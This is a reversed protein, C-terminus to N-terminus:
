SIEDTRLYLIGTQTLDTVCFSSLIECIAKITLSTEARVVESTGFLPTVADIRVNLSVDNEVGMRLKMPQYHRAIITVGFKLSFLSYDMLYTTTTNLYHASDIATYDYTRVTVYAPAAYKRYDHRIVTVNGTSFLEGVFYQDSTFSFSGPDDYHLFTVNLNIPSISGDVSVSITSYGLGPPVVCTLLTDNVLISVNLCNLSSNDESQHFVVVPAPASQSLTTPGFNRGTINVQTYYARYTTEPTIALVVPPSVSRFPSPVVTTVGDVTIIIDHSYPGLSPTVCTLTYNDVVTLNSCKKGSFSVSVVPGEKSATSPGFNEGYLTVLTEGYRTGIIPFIRTFVPPSLYTFAGSTNVQLASQDITLRLTIPTGVAYAAAAPTYTVAETNNRSVTTNLSLRDALHVQLDREGPLGALPGFNDGVITLKTGGSARGATPRVSTFVPAPYYVFSSAQTANDTNILPLITNPVTAKDFFALPTFAIFTDLISTALSHHRKVYSWDVPSLVVVLVKSENYSAWTGNTFTYSDEATLGDQVTIQGINVLSTAMPENFEFTFEETIFNLTFKLMFPPTLDAIFIDAMLAGGDYRPVVSNDNMDRILFYDWVLWTTNSNIAFNDISKINDLDTKSIQVVVVTDYSLNIGVSSSTLTRSLRTSSNQSNQLALTQVYLSHGNVTERFTLSLLGSDMDLLFSRIQPRVNDPTFIRVQQGRGNIIEEIRNGNMDAILLQSFTLFTDSKDTVLSTMKKLANLDNLDFRLILVTSNEYSYNGGSLRYYSALYILNTYQNSQVNIQTVDFSAIDVTEDFTLLILESNLNIDYSVLKPNTSDPTFTTVRRANNTSIDQVHNGIMDVIARTTLSLYTTSSSTCLNYLKRLVNMDHTGIKVTIVAVNPSNSLTFNPSQGPTLTHYEGMASPSGQLRIDSVNLSAANVAESFTIVLIATNMDLTFGLLSPSVRDPFFFRVKLANTFLIEVIKNNNMDDITYETLSLFTNNNNTALKTFTKIIDTDYQDLQITLDPSNPTLLKNRISLQHYETINQMKKNQITLLNFYLSSAYVTETFFLYLMHNNMDLDFYSLEPRKMDPTFVEAVLGDGFNISSRIPMVYNADFAMDRIAFMTITLWGNPRSTFLETNNKILNLDELSFSLVVVTSYERQKNVGGTLTYATSPDFFDQLTFATYNLSTANVTESFTLVAVEETLNVSFMVLRPMTVDAQYQNVGFAESDPRADVSNNAMDRITDSEYTIYCQTSLRCIILKKLTNLDDISFTVAVETSDSISSTGGTLTHSTVAINYDQLSISQINLTSARITEAFTLVFRGINMDISFNTLKPTTADSTFVAVQLASGDGIETLNNGAMDLVASTGAVLYTTSDNIALGQRRKIENRDEPGLQIVIVHGNDNITHSQETGPTLARPSTHYAPDSLTASQIAIYQVNLSTSEVFEDFTLSLLDLDLNLDYRLLTPSTGDPIFYSARKADTSSIAIVNNDNLDLITFNTMALYTENMRTALISKYKVANLDIFGLYVSVVTGDESLSYSRLPNFGSLSGQPFPYQIYETRNLQLNTSNQEIRFIGDLNQYTLPNSTGARTSQIRIQTLDLTDNVKVTESFTMNLLGLNLDLGYSRLEPSTKDEFFFRVSLTKAYALNDNMDLILEPPYSFYTNSTNTALSRIKKIQNLDQSGISVILMTGDIDFSRSGVPYPPYDTLSYSIFGPDSQLLSSQLRIKTVDLSSANVTESFEITLNEVNLDLDFYEIVPSTLDETFGTIQKGGTTPVSVIRNGFMDTIFFATLSLFTSNLDIALESLYKIRNIGDVSITISLMTSDTDNTVSFNTLTFSQPPNSRSSQITLQTVNITSLRVTESFSLTMMGVNLDIYSTILIPRTSDTTYDDVPRSSSGNFLPLVPIRNMDFLAGEEIVLWLTRNTRGIEKRKIENLDDVSLSVTVFRSDAAPTSSVAFTPRTLRHFSHEDAPDVSPYEQLVLLSIELSSVNVTESFTFNLLGSNLDAAYSVLYPQVIDMYFQTAPLPPSTAVSPNYAMDLVTYPGLYLYSTNRSTFLTDRAKINNLDNFQIFVDAQLGNIFTTSGTTLTYSSTYNFQSDQLRFLNYMFSNPRIPENFLLTLIGSTMNVSFTLLYPRMNEIPPVLSKITIALIANANPSTDTLATSDLKIYTDNVNTWCLEILKISDLDSKTLQLTFDDAYLDTLVGGTLNYVPSGNPSCVIRIRPLVFSLILITEDFDFFIEGADLNVTFNLLNSRTADQTFNSAMKANTNLIAVLPNGNMDLVTSNEVILFSDNPFNFMYVAAKLSNLERLSLTVTLVDSNESSSNSQTSLPLTPKSANEANQLTLREIQLTSADVTESFFLTLVGSNMDVNFSSLEPNIIDPNFNQVKEGSVGTLSNGAMDVVAFRTLTLFTSNQSYALGTLRKIENLDPLGLKVSYVTSDMQGSFLVSNLSLRYSVIYNSSSSHLLIDSINFTSTNVTESFTFTITESTLDLGFYVLVPATEDETFERVPLASIPSVLEMPNNNLDRISGYAVSLFTNSASSALNIIKKIENLDDIGIWVRVIDGNYSNTFSSNTLAYYTQSYLTENPQLVLNPIILTRPNVFESFTLVILGLNLDFDFELLLPSVLDPSYNDPTLLSVPYILNSFTDTLFSSPFSLLSSNASIALTSINKLQSLDFYNLLITVQDSATKSFLGGTLTVSQNNRNSITLSSIDITATLIVENFSLYLTESTLNLQYAFLEPRVKDVTFTTVLQANSSPIEIVFNGNMDVLTRNSFSIYTNASNTAFNAYLKFYDTDTRTLYITLRTSDTQTSSVSELRRYTQSNTQNTPLSSSNQLAIEHILLSSADVTENFEFVLQNSTLNLEFSYLIPRTIDELVEVAQLPVPFILKNGNLDRVTYPTLVIFTDAESDALGRIRKLENLDPISIVLSLIYGDYPYVFASIIQHTLSADSNQILITPPELTTSDVVENFTLSLDGSDMDLTFNDLRPATKDLTINLVRKAFSRPISLILNGQQDTLFPPFSIFTNSGNAFSALQRKIKIENLDQFSLQINIVHFDESIVLSNVLTYNQTAYETIGSQLTIRDVQISTANVTESFYLTLTEQDLDLQFYDLKPQTSDKIYSYAEKANSPSIRTINNARYDLIGQDGVSLYTDELRTALDTYRKIENLDDTQIMIVQVPDRHLSHPTDESLQVYSANIINRQSQITFMSPTMLGGITTESFSLTLYGTNLDLTYNLLLPKTLDETVDTAALLSLPRVMNGNMDRILERSITLSTFFTAHTLYTSRKLANLDEIGIQLILLPDDTSVAVTSLTLTYSEGSGAADALTLQTILLSTVNITESFILSLLGFNMDLSFSYLEPPVSDATFQEAIQARAIPIALVANASSDSILLSSFSLYSNSQTTLLDASRKIENLDSTNLKIRVVTDYTFNFQGQNLSFITASSANFSSFTLETIVLTDTQVTESFLLVLLEETLDLTYSLLEPPTIDRYFMSAIEATVAPIAIIPNNNMDSILNSSFTLYTSTNSTALQPLAKIQDLDQKTIRIELEVENSQTTYLYGTLRYLPFAYGPQSILVIETRNLTNVQMIENFSLVILGTDLDFTFQILEPQITDENFSEARLLTGPPVIPRLQNGSMDMIASSTVGIFTTNISIALGTLNKIINLDYTGLTIVVRTSDYGPLGSGYLVSSTTLSYSSTTPTLTSNSYLIIEQVLLTSADVVESFSLIVEESTLDLSFSVLSPSTDDSKLTSVPSTIPSNYNFFIDLVTTSTISIYTSDLSVALQYKRKIEDLDQKSIILYVVLGDPSPSTTLNSLTHYSDPYSVNRILSNQLTIESVRLTSSQITESFTLDLRGNGDLDLDFSVLRPATRDPIFSDVKLATMGDILAVVQNGSQDVIASSTMTLYTFNSTIAIRRLKLENLDSEALQFTVSTSDVTSLIVGGLLTLSSGASSSSFHSQLTLATEVLSTHDVTEYFTLNMQGTNMDLDFSLLRPRKQDSIFESAGIANVANMAMIQNGSMDRIANQGLILYSSFSSIYLSELKKIENVDFVSIDLTILDGNPSATSGGTLQYSDFILSPFQLLTFLSSNLTSSDVPENFSLMFLTENLNIIFSVFTPPTTDTGVASSRITTEAISNPISSVDRVGDAEITLYTNNVETALCVILKIADVDLKSLTFEVSTPGTVQVAPMISLRHPPCTSNYTDNQNTLVILGHQFTTPDIVEDFNLLMVGTNMDLTFNTFLPPSNDRQYSTAQIAFSLVSLENNNMDYGAGSLIFLFTDSISTGLMENFKIANLDQSSISVYVIYDNIPIYVLSTSLYIQGTTSFTDSRIILRSPNISTANMTESFTLILLGSDLDISFYALSPPTSDPTLESAMLTENIGLKTLQNMNMDVISNMRLYLFTNNVATGIDTRRKIENSDEVSLYVTINPLFDQSSYTANSLSRRTTLAFSVNRNEGVLVVDTPYFSPAYITEDFTLILLHSNLNLQFAILQPSTLDPIFAVAQLANSETIAMVNIQPDSSIAPDYYHKLFDASMALFTTTRSSAINTLSKLNNLDTPTLTITINFGNQLSSNGGTLSYTGQTGDMNGQLHLFQPLATDARIAHSFILHLTGTNMDLSYEQLSPANTDIVVSSAMYGNNEPIGILPNGQIDLITRNSLSVFTTSTEGISSLELALYDSDVLYIIISSKGATTYSVSRYDSLTFYEGQSSERDMDAQLQIEQVILSSINMPESFSLILIRNNLDLLTFETLFPRTTDILYASAQIANVGDRRAVVPNNNMDTIFNTPFSLWTTNFSDALFEIGQIATFDFLSLSVSLTDSNIPFNLLGATLTYQLTSYLDNQLTVALVELSFALMPEDFTLTLNGPTVSMDLSFGLLNPSILDPTFLSTLHYSIQALQNNAMDQILSPSSSIYTNTVSTYLDTILKIRDLDTKTLSFQISLGNETSILDGNALPFNVTSSSQVSFSNLTLASVSFTSVRVIESFFLDIIGNSMNVFFQTLEPSITDPSYLLVRLSDQPVVFNNAMDSVLRSSFNMYCDDGGMVRTCIELLKISNLDEESFSFVIYLSDQSLLTWNSFRHERAPTTNTHLSIISADFSSSIVTEDFTLVIFKTNMDLSWSSLSPRTIDSVLASTNLPSSLSIPIVNNGDQDRILSYTVSIFTNSTSTALRTLRKIENLDETLIDIVIDPNDYSATSGGSLTINDQLLNTNGLLTIAGPSLTIADVTESFKLALKGYNIDLSFAIMRPRTLDTTFVTVQAATGLTLPVVKNDRYDSATDEPMYLFTDATSTAVSEMSKLVNLQDPLLPFSIVPPHGPMFNTGNPPYSSGSIHLFRRTNNFRNIDASDINPESLSTESASAAITLQTPDFTKLVESFTFSMIGTNMDLNFYLLIPSTADQIPYPPHPSISIFSTTNIPNDNMDLITGYLLQIDCDTLLDGRCLGNKKFLNLDLDGLYMIVVSGDNAAFSGNTLQYMYAPIRMFVISTPVFSSGNVVESFTMNLQSTDLDLSFSVLTPPTSDETFNSVQIAEENGVPELPNNQMDSITAASLTIFTNSLSTALDTRLKLRNLDITSIEISIVTSFDTTIGSSNTIYIPLIPSTVNIEPQLAITSPDLTRPDVTELFTLLIVGTNMDLQFSIFIPDTKDFRYTDANHASVGNILPVVQHGSMDRIATADMVLWSTYSSEAIRLSKINNLDSLLFNLTVTSSNQTSIFGGNLRYSKMSVGTTDSMAQLVISNFNISRVNMTESFSLTIQESNMDLYFFRVRPRNDDCIPDTAPLASAPLIPKLKNFRIDTILNATVSIYLNDQCTFLDTIRKIENLDDETVQLQAMLGNTSSNHVVGGTLTYSSGSLSTNATSQLTIELTDLSSIDVPEDFNLYVASINSDATFRFFALFYFCTRLKSKM